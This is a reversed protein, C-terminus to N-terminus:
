LKSKVIKLLQLLNGEPLNVGIENISLCPKNFLVWKEAEEKNFFTKYKNVKIVYDITKVNAKTKSVVWVHTNPYFFDDGEFIAVGDETTFLPTKKSKKIDEFESQGGWQKIFIKRGYLIFGEIARSNYSFGDVVDRITFVEGDSLRKVSHIAYKGNLLEEEKVEGPSTNNLWTHKGNSLLKSPHNNSLKHTSVFSLIQYDLEELKERCHVYYQNGCVFSNASNPHPCYGSLIGKRWKVEFNKDEQLMDSFEYEKGIIYEKDGVTIKVEM